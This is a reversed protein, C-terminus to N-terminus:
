KWACSVQKKKKNKKKSHLVNVKCGKVPTPNWNLELAGLM